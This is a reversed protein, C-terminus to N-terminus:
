EETRARALKRLERWRQLIHEGLSRDFEGLWHDLYALDIAPTRLLIGNVDELDRPRGAVLKHIILDEVSAFRVAAKGVVVRQAHDMAQKEFASSSFIFDVRVGSAPELCPLVMTREVFEAPSNTLITWGWSQMLGLIAPLRDPGAGLTIDIVRTLRPEGYLLVAQGGIVLYPIRLDELALSIRELIQEFM